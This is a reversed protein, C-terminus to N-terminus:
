KGWITSQKMWVPLRRSFTGLFCQTVARCIIDIHVHLLENNAEVVRHAYEVSSLIINKKNTGSFLIQCKMCITEMPSLKCSIDFGTKRSFYSFIDDIQRRSFNKGLTSLMLLAWTKGICEARSQCGESLKSLLNKFQFIAIQQSPLLKRRLHNILKGSNWTIRVKLM